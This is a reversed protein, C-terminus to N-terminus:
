TLHGTMRLGVLTSLSPYNDGATSHISAAGLVGRKLSARLEAILNGNTQKVHLIFVVSLDLVHSLEPSGLKWSESKHL